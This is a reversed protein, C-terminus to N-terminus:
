GALAFTDRWRGSSRPHTNPRRPRQHPLGLRYETGTTLGTIVTDISGSQVFAVQTGNPVTGNDAFPSGGAPNLGSGTTANWGTIQGNARRFLRSFGHVLQSRFEPEPDDPRPRDSLAAPALSRRLAAPLFPFPSEHPNSTHPSSYTVPNDVLRDRLARAVLADMRRQSRTKACRRTLIDGAAVSRMAAFVAPRMALWRPTVEGDPGAPGQKRRRGVAVLIEQVTGDCPATVAAFMKMAELTLLPEGEKVNQGVTAAISAVMGPM